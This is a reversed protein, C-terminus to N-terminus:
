KLLRHNPTSRGLGQASIGFQDAFAHVRRLQLMLAMTAATLVHTWFLHRFSTGVQRFVLGVLSIKM